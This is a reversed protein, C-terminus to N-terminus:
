LLELEGVSRSTTEQPLSDTKNRTAQAQERPDQDQSLEPEPADWTAVVGPRM